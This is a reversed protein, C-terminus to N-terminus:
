RAVRSGVSGGLPRALWTRGADALADAAASATEEGEFLGYVVPGGGSVDARFAGLSRITAALPSSALDNPPLRALDTAAEIRRLADLLAARRAEFGCAGDREDFARYVAETSEKRAGHPLVLLVHYDSPLRVPELTTGDGSALQAGGRLFFPVDSGLAAAIEHLVDASLPEPLTENALLLAAAADSSGGALGAAVPIRKEIRVRWGPEAGARRALGRLAAGVLTDQEFGTVRLTRAPELTVDDHLTVRELLTLVEHKGDAHVPGVVLALNLKAHAPRTTM